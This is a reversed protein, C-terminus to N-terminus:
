FSWSVLGHQTLTRVNQMVLTDRLHGDLGAGSPGVAALVGAPV